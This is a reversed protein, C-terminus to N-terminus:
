LSLSTAAAVAAVIIAVRGVAMAAPIVAFFDRGTPFVAMMMVALALALMMMIATACV